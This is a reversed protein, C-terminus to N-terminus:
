IKPSAHEYVDTRNEIVGLMSNVMNKNPAFCYQRDCMDRHVQAMACSYCCISALYSCCIGEGRGLASSINSRLSIFALTPLAGGSLADMLAYVVAPYVWSRELGADQLLVGQAAFGCFLSACWFGPNANPGACCACLGSSWDPGRPTAAQPM